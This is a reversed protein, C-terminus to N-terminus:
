PLWLPKRPFGVHYAIYQLLLQHEGVNLVVFSKEANIIMGRPHDNLCRNLLAMAQEIEEESRMSSPNQNGVVIRKVFRVDSVSFGDGAM